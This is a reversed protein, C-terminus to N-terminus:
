WLHWRRPVSAHAGLAALVREQRSPRGFHQLCAEIAAPFLLWNNALPQITRVGELLAVIRDRVVGDLGHWLADPARLLALALYAIDVLPQPPPLDGVYDPSAPDSIAALGARAWGTWPEPRECELWPAIGALTRAFAELPAFGARSPAPTECPMVERLRQQAVNELVPRAIRTAAALWEARAKSADALV